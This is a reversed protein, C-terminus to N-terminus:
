SYRGSDLYRYSVTYLDKDTRAYSTHYWAKYLTRYLDM